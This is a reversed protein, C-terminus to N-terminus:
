DVVGAAAVSLHETLTAIQRAKWAHVEGAVVRDWLRPLRHRIALADGMWARASAISTNFPLVLGQPAFEAVLPCGAPGISVLREVLPGGDPHDVGSHADAWAAAVMLKQCGTVRNDHEVEAALDALAPTNGLAAELEDDFM